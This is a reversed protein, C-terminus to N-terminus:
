ILNRQAQSARNRGLVACSQNGAAENKAPDWADGLRRAEANFPISAFDSKIPTVTRWRWDETVVL